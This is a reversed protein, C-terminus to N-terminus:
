CIIDRPDPVRAAQVIAFASGGIANRARLLITGFLPGCESNAPLRVKASRANGPATQLLDLQSGDVPTGPVFCPTGVNGPAYRPCAWTNYIRFEDAYGAPASWSM